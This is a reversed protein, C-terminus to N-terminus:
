DSLSLAARVASVLEPIDIPKALYRLFGAAMGKEIDRKTVAASLALVPINRTEDYRRLEELAEFGSIGSLNIDLIIVNPKKERALEIGAEATQASIMSLGEIHSVIKEMVKLNIPNDEVYLLCGNIGSFFNEVDVLAVATSEVVENDDSEAQPLEIWFTSGKGEESELGIFGDMLEMLKKTVVLGIGSGEVDSNEAGLRSFPKFLESRKEEAIGYGNDTVAIRLRNDVAGKVSIKVEGSQRNYKVSNSILNLLVQKLRTRDACVMRREVESSVSINIDRQTAMIAGLPLCEAIIESLLIKEVSVDMKGAEIRSLDLIDNILELLHKGSKVIHDVCEAQDENLPGEANAELLQGFGLIANMPTRLEHSMSSLFTSKARNALEAENRAQKLFQEAQRRASVDVMTSCVALDGDWEMPFSHIELWVTQGDQRQVEEQYAARAVVTQDGAPRHLILRGDEEVCPLYSFSFAGNLSDIDECAFTKLYAANGFLPVGNRHILVSESLDEVMARFNDVSKTLENEAKARSAQAALLKHSARRRIFFFVLMVSLVALGSSGFVLILLRFSNSQESDLETTSVVAVVQGVREGNVVIERSFRRESEAVVYRPEGFTRKSLDDDIWLTKVLPAQTADQQVRELIPWDFSEILNGSQIDIGMLLADTKQVFAKELTENQQSHIAFLAALMVALLTLVLAVVARSLWAENRDIM